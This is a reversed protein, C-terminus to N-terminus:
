SLGLEGLCGDCGCAKDVDSLWRNLNSEASQYVAGLVAMTHSSAEACRVAFAKGLVECAGCECLEDVDEVDIGVEREVSEFFELSFEVGQGTFLVEVECRMCPLPINLLSLLLPHPGSEVPDGQKSM